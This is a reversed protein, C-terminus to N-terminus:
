CAEAAQPQNDKILPQILGELQAAAPDGGVSKARERRPQGSHWILKQPEPV